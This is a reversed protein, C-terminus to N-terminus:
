ALKVRAKGSYEVVTKPIFPFHTESRIQSLSSKNSLATSRSEAM